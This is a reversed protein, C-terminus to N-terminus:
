SSDAEAGSSEPSNDSPETANVGKLQTSMRGNKSKNSKSSKSSKRSAQPNEIADKNSKKCSNGM